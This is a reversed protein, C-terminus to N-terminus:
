ETIEAKMEVEKVEPAYEGALILVSDFDINEAEFRELVERKIPSFSFKSVPLELLENIESVAKDHNEHDVPLGEEKSGGNDIIIGMRLEEITNYKAFFKERNEKLKLKDGILMRQPILQDCLIILGILHKNKFNAQM